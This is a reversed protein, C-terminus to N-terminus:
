RSTMSHARDDVPGGLLRVVALLLNPQRKPAALRALLALLETDRAIALSLREYTPSAGRAERVAFDAYLQAVPVTLPDVGAGVGSDTM